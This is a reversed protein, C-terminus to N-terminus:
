GLGFGSAISPDPTQGGLAFVALLVSVVTVAAVFIAFAAGDLQSALLPPHGGSVSRGHISLIGYM